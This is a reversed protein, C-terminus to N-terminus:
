SPFAPMANKAPLVTHDMDSCKAHMSLPAMYIHDEKGKGKLNFPKSYGLLESATEMFPMM